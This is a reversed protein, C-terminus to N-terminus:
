KLPDLYNIKMIALFKSSRLTDFSFVGSKEPPHGFQYKSGSGSQSLTEDIQIDEDSFLRM